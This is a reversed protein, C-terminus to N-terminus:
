ATRALAPTISDQGTGTDEALEAVTMARARPLCRVAAVVLAERVQGLDSGEVLERLIDGDVGPDAVEALALDLVRDMRSMRGSVIVSTGRLVLM